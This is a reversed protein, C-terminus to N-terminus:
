AVNYGALFDAYLFFFDIRNFGPMFRLWYLIKLHENPKDIEIPM